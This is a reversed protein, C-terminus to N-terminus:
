KKFVTMDLIGAEAASMEALLAAKRRAVAQMRMDRIGDDFVSAPPEVPQAARKEDELIEDYRRCLSGYDLMQQNLVAKRGFYDGHGFACSDIVTDILKHRQDELSNYHGCAAAAEDRHDPPINIMSRFAEHQQLSVDRVQHLLAPLDNAGTDATVSSTSM